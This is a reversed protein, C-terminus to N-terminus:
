ILRGMESYIRPDSKNLQRIEPEMLGVARLIYETRSLGLTSAKEDMMAVVKPDIWMHVPHYGNRLTPM